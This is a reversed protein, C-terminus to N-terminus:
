LSDIVESIRGLTGSHEELIEMRFDEFDKPGRSDLLANLKKNISAQDGPAYLFEERDMLAEPFSRYNPYLPLCGFTLAELLTFSVWDQSSCNFQVRSSALIRYYDPKKCNEFITLKKQEQLRKARRVAQNDTGTLEPHGTCIVCELGTDTEVLDLFEGPNKELDFRSSYVVDYERNVPLTGGLQKQVHIHDFPLGVVIVREEVHPLATVILDRLLTSAVFVREYIEFAMVEWPRMWNVFKRTFDFGDFSQAWLFSYARFQSRSYAIADLGPHYFDSFWIRGMVPALKLLEVTQQLAWVPRAVSDLVEGTRINMSVWADKPNPVVEQYDFRKSFERREWHHLFETYRSQYAELPAHLLRKKAANM